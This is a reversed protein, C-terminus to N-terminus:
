NITNFIEFMPTIISLVIVGVIAALLVIMLPEILSKLQDTTTEVEAEYFDAVKSLMYDLSGTQEGIAIMQTVLPPFAWHSVMPETLSKGEELSKRSKCLVRVIVENGVVSEVIQVAQLIPVASSFLSSLTRTTKAIAAKRFLKGFFPIKLMVYDLYYKSTNKKNTLYITVINIVIVIGIVWWYSSMWGSAALVFVTIKPLEGDFQEFMDVYMPVTYMLLFIVVLMAIIGVVIPYTLASKVKQRMRYQKEYYDAMRELTGDLSGSVEGVRVMNIFMKTFIKPHKSYAESLHNGECLEEDIALLAKKLAKSETQQSLIKTADVVTIGARLLTAFQRLYIVFLKLSVPAGLTIDKTLITEKKQEVELVRLGKDRMKIHVEHKSKAQIIGTRRKGTRDRAIYSFQPM